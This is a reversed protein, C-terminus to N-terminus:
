QLTTGGDREALMGRAQDIGKSTMTYVGDSVERFLGKEVVTKIERRAEADTMTDGAETRLLHALQEATFTKFM